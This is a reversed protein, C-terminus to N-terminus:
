LMGVCCLEVCCWVCCLVVCRLVLVVCRWCLVGMCGHQAEPIMAGSLLLSLSAKWSATTSYVRFTLSNNQEEAVAAHLTHCCWVVCECV